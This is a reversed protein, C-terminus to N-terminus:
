TVTVPQISTIETFDDNYFCVAFANSTYVLDSALKYLFDYTSNEANPRLSLLRSLKDNKITTGDATKRIIQPTLKAVNTAIANAVAGVIENDRLTGSCFYESRSSLFIRNRRLGSFWRSMNTLLGM